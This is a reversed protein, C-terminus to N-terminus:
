PLSDSLDSKLFSLMRLSRCPAIRKQANFLHSVTLFMRIIRIKRAFRENKRVIQEFGAFWECWEKKFSRNQAISCFAFSRFLLNGVRSSPPRFATFFHIIMRNVGYWVMGRGFHINDWFSENLDDKSNFPLQTMWTRGGIVLSSRQRRKQKEM